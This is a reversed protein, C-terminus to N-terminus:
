SSPELTEPAPAKWDFGRRHWRRGGPRHGGFFGDRRTFRFRPAPGEPRSQYWQQHEDAQEQTLRGREVLRNLRRQSAEDQGERQLERAAQDFAVQVDAGDLGLIVAVRSALSNPPSDGETLNVRALVVGGALGLTLVGAFLTVLLWKRKM